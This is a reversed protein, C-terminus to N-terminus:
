SLITLSTPSIEQMWSPNVFDIVLDQPVITTLFPNINALEETM